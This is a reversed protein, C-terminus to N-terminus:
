NSETSRKRNFCKRKKVKMKITDTENINIKIPSAEFQNNTCSIMYNYQEERSKWKPKENKLLPLAFAIRKNERLWTPDYLSVEIIPEAVELSGDYDMIGMEWHDKFQGILEEQDLESYGVRNTKPTTIYYPNKRGATIKLELIIGNLDVKEDSVM